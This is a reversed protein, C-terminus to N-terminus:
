YYSILSGDKNLLKVLSFKVDYYERITNVAGAIGLLSIYQNFLAQFENINFKFSENTNFETNAYKKAQSANQNTRKQTAHPRHSPSLNRLVDNQHNGQQQRKAHNGVFLM